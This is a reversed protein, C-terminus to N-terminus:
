LHGGDNVIKMQKEGKMHNLSTEHSIPIYYGPIVKFEGEGNRGVLSPISPVVVGLEKTNNLSTRQSAICVHMRMFSCVIPAHEVHIYRM